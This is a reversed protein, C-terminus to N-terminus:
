VPYDRKDTDHNLTTNKCLHYIKIPKALIILSEDQKLFGFILESFTFIYLADKLFIPYQFTAHKRNNRFNGIIELVYSKVLKLENLINQTYM